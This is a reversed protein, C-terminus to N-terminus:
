FSNPFSQTAFPPAEIADQTSMGFAFASVLSMSISGNHPIGTKCPWRTRILLVTPHGRMGITPWVLGGDDAKKQQRAAALPLDQRQSPGVVAFAM